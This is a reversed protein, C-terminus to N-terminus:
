RARKYFPLETVVCPEHKDRVVFSLETGVAAHETKVYATAINTPTGSKSLTPSISGSCVHGITEGGAAAIAYGHRPCRKSHTTLGVLTRGTGGAAEVKELAAKGVFDHNMKVAWSLNAELPNTTEDLEHGYLPMGAEHRLTDRAGLGIPLLGDDKGAELFAKWVQEEHGSPIYAEFGDEGTYGTRSLTMPIGCVETEMWAYYKLESLDSSCIRQTIDQSRPGQIAVMGLNQTCDDVVVDFDKATARMRELDRAANGANIVVFFGGAEDRTGEPNRYLLIDDQTLGQEDLIMAYRIRGPKISAADNTQLRQLFAEAQPGSVKVRGMHGLDFLGAHERVTKAEELIGRYQVPMNWGAFPVMRAGHAIHVSELATTQM